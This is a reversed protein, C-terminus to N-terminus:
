EFVLLDWHHTGMNKRIQLAMMTKLCRDRMRAGDDEAARSDWLIWFARWASRRAAFGCESRRVSAFRAQDSARCCFIALLSRLFCM